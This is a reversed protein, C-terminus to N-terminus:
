KWSLPVLSARSDLTILNINQLRYETQPMLNQLFFKLMWKLLIVALQSCFLATCVNFYMLKEPVKDRLDMCPSQGSGGSPSKRGMFGM